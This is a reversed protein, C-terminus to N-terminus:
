RFYLGFQSSRLTEEQLRGTETLTNLWKIETAESSYSLDFEISSQDLTEKPGYSLCYINRTIKRIDFKEKSNPVLRYGLHVRGESNRAISLEIHYLQEPVRALQQTDLSIIMLEDSELIMTPQVKM